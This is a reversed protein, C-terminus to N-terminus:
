GDYADQSSCGAALSQGGARALPGVYKHTCTPSRTWSTKPWSGSEPEGNTKHIDIIHNYKDYILRAECLKSQRRLDLRESAIQERLKVWRSRLAWPSRSGCGSVRDSHM